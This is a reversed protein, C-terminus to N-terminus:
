KSFKISFSAPQLTKPAYPAVVVVAQKYPFTQRGVNNADLVLERVCPQGGDAKALDSTDTAGCPGDRRIIQVWFRQPLALNSRVFGAAEWGAEGNEIDDKWGIEPIEFDDFLAGQRSYGEDTVYELRLKIKQGAFKSLDVTEQGWVSRVEETDVLYLGDATTQGTMGPGYTKNSPDRDTTYKSGPVVKWTKGDDTSVSIYLWDYLPELDLWTRYKLTASKVGSLDISRTLSTNSDDGRNSWWAYQGSFAKPGVLAVTKAGSFDLTFGNDSGQINYYSAAFQNVSEDRSTNVALNIPNEVRATIQQYNYTSDASRRNLYNTVVFQKLLTESSLGPQGNYYLAHDIANFGVLGKRNLAIGKFVDFGYRDKIFSLWTYGAGYYRLTGCASCTWNNLQTGPRAMFSFEYSGSSYNNLVQSLVSSGENIWLDQNPLTNYYIMHQFEHALTGLYTDANTPGTSIYFMERENSNPNVPRLVEDDSSFFGSALKLPSNLIVLHPDNDVGPSPEEGFYRRTTPYVKDEFDQALRALNAADQGAKVDLFMYLHPTVAVVRATVPYPIKRELDFVTFTEQDGVKYTPKTTTRPRETPGGKYRAYLAYLDRRPPTNTKVSFETLYAGAISPEPTAQAQAVASTRGFEVSLGFGILLLLGGIFVWRLM